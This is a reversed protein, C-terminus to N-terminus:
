NRLFRCWWPLRNNTIQLYHVPHSGFKSYFYAVSKIDSGEFDFVLPQSSFEKLVEDILIHTAGFKKGEETPAAMAYHIMGKAMFFFGACWLVGKRSYIGRTFGKGLSIAEEECRIIRDYLSQDKPYFSGYAAIFCEVVRNVQIDKRVEFGTLASKALNKKADANYRDYIDTYHQNLSVQYTTRNVFSMRPHFYLNTSNLHFQWYRFRKPIADIFREVLETTIDTKSFLGLQQCLFPQYLYPMGFKRSWVLPFVAEYDGMILADWRNGAMNNLMFSYAYVLGNPSDDIAKDWKDRDIDPNRCYRIEAM